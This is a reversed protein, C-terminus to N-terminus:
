YIIHTRCFVLDSVFVLLTDIEEKWARVMAEDYDRM